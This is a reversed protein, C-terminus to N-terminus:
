FRYKLGLTVGWYQFSSLRVTGSFPTTGDARVPEHSRIIADSSPSQPGLVWAPMM